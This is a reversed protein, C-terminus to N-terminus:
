GSAKIGVGCRSGVELDESAGNEGALADEGVCRGLATSIFNHAHAGGIRRHAKLRWRAEFLVAQRAFQRRQRVEAGGLRVGPLISNLAGDCLRACQLGSEQDCVHQAPQRGKALRKGLLRQRKIGGHARQQAVNNAVM